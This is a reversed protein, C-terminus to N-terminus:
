SQADEDAALERLQELTLATMDPIEAPAATASLGMSALAKGLARDALWELAWVGEAGAVLEPLWAL